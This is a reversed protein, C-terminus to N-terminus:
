LRVETSSGDSELLYLRNGRNFFGSKALRDLHWEEPEQRVYVESGRPLAHGKISRASDLTYSCSGSARGATKVLGSFRFVSHESGQGGEACNGTLELCCYRADLGFGRWVDVVCSVALPRQESGRLHSMLDWSWNFQEGLDLRFCNHGCDYLAQVLPDLLRSIGTLHGPELSNIRGVVADLFADASAVKGGEVLPRLMEVSINWNSPLIGWTYPRMVGDLSEPDFGQEGPTYSGSDEPRVAGELGEFMGTSM